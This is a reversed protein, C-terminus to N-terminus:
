IYYKPYEGDSLEEFTINADHDQFIIYGDGCYSVVFENETEALTLITFCLFDRVTEPTQGFIEVMKRFEAEIPKATHYKLDGYEMLHCFTKAGVESHKGESCGDCVYSCIKEVFGYDQCNMGTELHEMGIKNIFM